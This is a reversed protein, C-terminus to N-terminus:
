SILSDSIVLWCLDYLDGFRLSRRSASFVELISEAELAEFMKDRLTFFLDTLRPSFRDTDSAM